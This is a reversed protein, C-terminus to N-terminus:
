TSLAQDLDTLIEQTLDWFGNERFPTAAQRYATHRQTHHNWHSQAHYLARRATEAASKSRTSQFSRYAILGAFLDHIAELLSETYIMSGLLPAMTEHERDGLAEQLKRYLRAATAAAAAKEDLVADLDTLPIRQIMRWAAHADLTDDEIWDGNPHWPSPKLRAFPGIYFAQRIMEASDALIETLVEVLPDNEHLELRTIAWERALAAPDAQPDDALRPAAFASADIWTENKIFPGGWGGGRVWCWLGALPLREALQALGQPQDTTASEPYGDRWLAAQNNPLAGKGEFERQCQLEYLIPTQGCVLSSPNWNQYRWFDTQTFKFSLILRDDDRQPLRPAVMAALDPNDHLGDPRVNWARVIMRKGLKEVIRDHGQTIAHVIRDAASWDACRSCHPTYLDNGILHPLRQADNDGFRLVVGAVAPYRELLAELVAYVRDWIDPSAPCLVKGRGRCCLNNNKGEVADTALVLLDYSLYTELGAGSIQDIRETLAQLAHNLWNRLEPDRVFEPSTVGSLATTEYLVVGTYGLAALEAPDRYRSQVPPEGANDLITALKLM